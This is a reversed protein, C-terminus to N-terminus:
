SGVLCEVNNVANLSKKVKSRVFPNQQLIYGHRIVEVEEQYYLFPPPMSFGNLHRCGINTKYRRRRQGLYRYVSSRSIGMMECIEKIAYKRSGDGNVEDYLKYLRLTKEKDLAKQRGGKKGRARAAALGWRWIRWIRRGLVWRRRRGMAKM